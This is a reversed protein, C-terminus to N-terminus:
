LSLFAKHAKRIDKSVKTQIRKDNISSDVSRNRKLPVTGMGSGTITGTGTVTGVGSGTITGTGTGTVTGVSSGTGNGTSIISGVEKSDKGDM